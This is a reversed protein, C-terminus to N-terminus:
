NVMRRLKNKDPKEPKRMEMKQIEGTKRNEKGMWKEYLEKAVEKAEPFGKINRLVQLLGNKNKCSRAIIGLVHLANGFEVKDNEDGLVKMLLDLARKRIKENGVAKELAITVTWKVELNTDGFVVKVFAPIVMSIDTGNEAARRLAWTVHSRVHKKKDGIAEGLAPIAISIDEGKKAAKELDRAADLRVNPNEDSLKKALELIKKEDMGIGEKCKWM